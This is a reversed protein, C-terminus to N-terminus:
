QEIREHLLGVRTIQVIMEVIAKAQDMLEDIKFALQIWIELGEKNEDQSLRSIVDPLVTKFVGFYASLDVSKFM